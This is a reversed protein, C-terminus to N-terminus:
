RIGLDVIPKVNAALKFATPVAVGEVLEVELSEQLGQLTAPLRGELVLISRVRPRQNRGVLLAKSLARYKVCQYIGRTIEYEDADLAKVEVAILQGGNRFLVDVRDMSPYQFEIEKLETRVPLKIRMPNKSVFHKLRLHRLSEASGTRYRKALQKTTSELDPLQPRYPPLKFHDLVEEWHEYSFIQNWVTEVAAQRDDKTRVRNKKHSLLDRLLWNLGGTGPLKTQKNYALFQILPINEDHWSKRLETLEQGVFMLPRGLNRHYAGILPALEGYTVPRRRVSAFYALIPLLHESRVVSKGRYRERTMKFPM